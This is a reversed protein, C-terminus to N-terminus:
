TEIITKKKKKKKNQDEEQSTQPTVTTHPSKQSKQATHPTHSTHPQQKEHPPKEFAAADTNVMAGEFGLLTVDQLRRVRAMAVYFQGAEFCRRADVRVSDLTLGQVKHITSAWALIVPFQMLTIEATKGVVSRFCHRQIRHEQTELPLNPFRVILHDPAIHKILGMAGNCLGRSISLNVRLMVQAGVALTIKGLPFRELMQKEDEAIATAETRERVDLATHLPLSSHLCVRVIPEFPWKYTSLAALREENRMDVAQRLPFVDLPELDVDDVDNLVDVDPVDNLGDVDNVDEFVEPGVAHEGEAEGEGEAKADARKARKSQQQTAQSQSQQQQQQQSKSQPQKQEQRTHLLKRDAENLQGTRLHNLLTLFAGADEQQNQRFCRQLWVRALRLSRWADTQFVFRRPEGQKFVPGLQLFDGFMLLQWPRDCALSRLRVLKEFFDPHVMSIEDIVLVARTSLFVRARIHRGPQSKIKQWLEEVTGQALGLSLHRHLTEGGINYAAIGTPAAVLFEIAPSNDNKDNKDNGSTGTKEARAKAVLRRLLHSKGSGAAGSVLVSLGARLARWVLQEDKDGENEETEESKYLVAEDVASCIYTNKQTVYYNYM